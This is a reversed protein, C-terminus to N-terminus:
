CCLNDESEWEVRSREELVEKGNRYEVRGLRITNLRPPVAWGERRSSGVRYEGEARSFANSIRSLVRNKSSRNGANLEIRLPM